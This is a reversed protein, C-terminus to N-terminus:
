SSRPDSAASNVFADSLAKIQANGGLQDLLGASGQMSGCGAAGLALALALSCVAITRFTMPRTRRQHEAALHPFRPATDMLGEALRSQGTGRPRPITRKVETAPPAITVGSGPAILRSAEVGVLPLLGDGLKLRGNELPGALVSIM